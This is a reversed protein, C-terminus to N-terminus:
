HQLQYLRELSVTTEVILRDHGVQQLQYALGLDGFRRAILNASARRAQVVRDRFAADTLTLRVMRDAFNMELQPPPLQANHSAWLSSRADTHRMLLKQRDNAPAVEVLPRVLPDLATLARPMHAEDRIWFEVVDDRVFVGTHGIRKERLLNRMSDRVGELEFRKLDKVDVELQVREGGQLDNGLVPKRQAWQPLQAFTHAPLVGPVAALCVLVTVGLIAATKWRSFELM